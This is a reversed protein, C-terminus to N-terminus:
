DENDESLSRWRASGWDAGAAQAADIMADERSIAEGQAIIEGTVSNTVKWLYGSTTGWTRLNHNQFSAVWTRTDEQPL